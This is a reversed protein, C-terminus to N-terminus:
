SYSGMGPDLDGQVEDVDDCTVSSPPTAGVMTAIRDAAGVVELVAHHAVQGCVWTTHSGPLRAQVGHLTEAGANM